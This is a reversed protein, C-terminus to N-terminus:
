TTQLHPYPQTGARTLVVAGLGVAALLITALVGIWATFWFIGWIHAIFVLVVGGVTASIMRPQEGLDLRRFLYEGILQALALWGLLTLLAIVFWAVLVVPLLVVPLILLLSILYLVSLGVAVIMTLLGVGGTVGPANRISNSMLYLPRPIVVAGLAALAGFFLASFFTSGVRFLLANRWNDFGSQAISGLGSRSSESCEEKIDGRIQADSSRSVDEVCIVLDGYVLAREGVALTDSIVVVDGIVESDLIVDSGILTADGDIQSGAELDINQAMILQDNSRQEGSALTYDTRLNFDGVDRSPAGCAVSVLALPVLLALLPLLHSRKHPTTSPM